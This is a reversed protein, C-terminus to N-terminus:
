GPRNAPSAPRRRAGLYAIALAIVFPVVREVAGGRTLPWLHAGVSLAFGCVMSALVAPARPRRRSVTVLLLPGFAAGMATWAFLVSSFITEDVRLAVLVAAISIALVTARSRRLQARQTRKSAGAGGLLDHSITSAAVLLQSDATSMIASLLAAVMVGALVPPLLLETSHVFADERSALEPALVRVSWGLVIMGTYIVVAWTLAIRRGVVVSRDDRLAMFRNVVHPQGPYGLGIGLLGLVFGLAAAGPLGKTAAAWTTVGEPGSVSALLGDVGVEALAVLPLIVAALAMMVGQLTDTLSVAWFGGLLTYFIVIGAGILLAWEFRIDFTEAFAKGAGQFQASVYTLLSLLIITSAVLVIARRRESGVPGALLETVTIAGRERAVRRLAPALVFWNLAFGGICAPLLWIAALGFGYAYGSVGILTWVSSSSASASLAAVAPGLRRGGLFYDSDDISLRNALVGIAVMALKYVVLTCLIAQARSM